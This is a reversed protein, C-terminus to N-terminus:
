ITILLIILLVLILLVAIVLGEYQIGTNTSGCRPCKHSINKGRPYWSYHCTKCINQPRQPIRRM